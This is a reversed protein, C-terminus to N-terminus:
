SHDFDSSNQTPAVSSLCAGRTLHDRDRPQHNSAGDALAATGSITGTAFSVRTFQRLQRLLRLAGKGFVISFHAMQHSM